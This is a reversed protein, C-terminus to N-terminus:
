IRGEETLNLYSRFRKMFNVLEESPIQAVVRQSQGDVVQIITRNIDKDYQIQVTRNSEAARIIEDWARSAISDQRVPTVEQVNLAVKKPATTGGAHQSLLQMRIDNIAGVSM